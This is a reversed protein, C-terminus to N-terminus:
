RGIQVAIERWGDDLFRARRKEIAALTATWFDESHGFYREDGFLDAIIALGSAEVDFLAQEVRIAGGGFLWGKLQNGQPCYTQPDDFLALWARQQGKSAMTLHRVTGSSIKEKAYLSRIRPLLNGLALIRKVMPEPM